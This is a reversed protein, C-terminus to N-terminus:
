EKTYNEAVIKAITAYSDVKLSAGGILFGDVGRTKILQKANDAKVSGGYLVATKEAVKVSYLRKLVERVAGHAEDVQEISAIVGTGIAWVPEYAIIINDMADISINSLGLSLQEELIATTEGAERQQLTEGICLIPKLGDALTAQVKRNIWDNPEHFVHRRESHGIIVYEAGCAKLMGTSIEGTFAGKAEFHVNQAALAMSSNRLLSEIHFLGTFPPSFIINVGKVKLLLEMCEEVFSYGEQPTLHMKWNGAVIPKTIM